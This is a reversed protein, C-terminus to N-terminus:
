MQTTPVLTVTVLFLVISMAMTVLTATPSVTCDADCDGQHTPRFCAVHNIFRQSLPMFSVTYTYPGEQILIQATSM